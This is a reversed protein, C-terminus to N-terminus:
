PKRKRIAIVSNALSEDVLDKEDNVPTKLQEEIHQKLLRIIAPNSTISKANLKFVNEQVKIELAKMKNTENLRYSVISSKVFELIRISALSILSM